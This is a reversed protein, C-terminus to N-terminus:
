KSIKRRVAAIGAMAVGFLMFTPGADPVRSPRTTRTFGAVSFDDKRNDTPVSFVAKEINLPGGFPVFLEGNAQDSGNGYFLISMLGGPGALDITVQGKEGNPTSGDPPGFLDTIWVGMLGNGSTGGFNIRLKEHPDIEDPSGDLFHKVGLGDISDQHLKGINGVIGISYIAKATVDAVTHTQQGNAGAWSGSRFDIDLSPIAWSSIAGGILLAATGFFQKKM